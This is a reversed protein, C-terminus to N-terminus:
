FDREWSRFWVDIADRLKWTWPVPCQEVYGGDVQEVEGPTPERMKDERDM